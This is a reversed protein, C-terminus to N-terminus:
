SAEVSCPTIECHRNFFTPPPRTAAVSTSIAVSPTRESIRSPLVACIRFKRCVPERKPM